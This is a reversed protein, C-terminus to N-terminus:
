TQIVYLLVNTIVKKGSVIFHKMLKIELKSFLVCYITEYIIYRLLQM